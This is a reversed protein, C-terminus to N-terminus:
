EGAYKSELSSVLVGPKEDVWILEGYGINLGNAQIVIKKGIDIDCPLVQGNFLCELEAVTIMRQQLIFTLRVPIQSRLSVERAKVNDDPKNSFQQENGESEYDADISMSNGEQKYLGIKKNNIYLKNNSHLILLADGVKLETLLGLSIDSNGISFDLTLIIKNIVQTCIIPLSRNGLSKPLKSIWLNGQPTILQLLPRPSDENNNFLKPDMLQKYKLELPTLDLPYTCRKFLNIVDENSWSERALKSNEPFVNFFWEHLDIVGQWEADASFSLLPVNSPPLSLKVSIGEANWIESVRQIEIDWSLVKRMRNEIM